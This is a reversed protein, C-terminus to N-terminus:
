SGPEPWRGGALAVPGLEQDRAAKLSIEVIDRDIIIATSTVRRMAAM